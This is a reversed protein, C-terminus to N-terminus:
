NALWRTSCAGENHVVRPDARWGGHVIRPDTYEKMTSAATCSALTQVKLAAAERCWALTRTGAVMCWTLTQVKM